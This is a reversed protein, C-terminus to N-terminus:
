FACIVFLICMPYFCFDNLTTLPKLKTTYIPLNCKNPLKCIERSWCYLVFMLLIISAYKQYICYKTNICVGCITYLDSSSYLITSGHMYAHYLFHHVSNRGLLTSSTSFVTTGQDHVVVTLFSFVYTGLIKYQVNCLVIWNKEQQIEHLMQYNNSPSKM